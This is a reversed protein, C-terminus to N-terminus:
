GSRSVMGPQKQPMYQRFSCRGRYPVLQEDVRIDDSLNFLQSLRLLWMEWVERFAALKDDACRWPWTLRDDFRITANILQFRKLSMTSRFVFRGTQEDWLSRTAKNRSRYVGALLLLGPFARMEAPDTNTWHRTFRQGHLNTYDVIIQVTMDRLYLSFCDELSNVRAVAYLTPGATVRTAVPLYRLTEDSYPAWQIEGPSSRRRRMGLTLTSPPTPLHCQYGTGQTLTKSFRRMM